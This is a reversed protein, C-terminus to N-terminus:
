SSSGWDPRRSLCQVGRGAGGHMLHAFSCIPSRDPGALGPSRTLARGIRRGAYRLFEWSDGFGKPGELAGGFETQPIGHGDSSRRKQADSRGIVAHEAMERKAKEAEEKKERGSCQERAARLVNGSGGVEIGCNQPDARGSTRRGPSSSRRDPGAELETVLWCAVAMTSAAAARHLATGVAPTVSVSM